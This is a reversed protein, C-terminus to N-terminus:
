ESSQSRIWWRIFLAFSPEMEAVTTATRGVHPAIDEDVLIELGRMESEIQCILEKVLRISEPRNRSVFGIRIAIVELSAL